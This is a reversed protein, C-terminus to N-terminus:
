RPRSLKAGHQALDARAGREVVEITKTMRSPAETNESTNRPRPPSARTSSASRAMGPPANPPWPRTMATINTRPKKRSVKSIMKMM